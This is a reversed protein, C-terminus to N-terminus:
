FNVQIIVHTGTVRNHEKRDLIKFNFNLRNGKKSLEARERLIKLATSTGQHTRKEIKQAAKRGIGNDLVHVFLSKLNSRFVIHVEGNLQNGIGHLIANEVFPQVLLAPLKVQLPKKVESYEISFSFKDAFRRRELSLYTQLLQVEDHVSVEVQQSAHLIARMLAAFEAIYDAILSEDQQFIFSQIGQLTNFIFHPSLQLQLSKLHLKSSKQDNLVQALQENKAKLGINHEKEQALLEDQQERQYERKLEELKLKKEAEFITDHIQEIRQLVEFAQKYDENAMHGEYARELAELTSTIETAKM